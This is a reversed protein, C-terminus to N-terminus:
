QAKFGQRDNGRQGSKTRQKKQKKPTDPIEVCRFVIRCIKWLVEVIAGTAVDVCFPWASLRLPVVKFAM